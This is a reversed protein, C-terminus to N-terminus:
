PNPFYGDPGSPMPLPAFTGGGPLIMGPPITQKFEARLKAFERELADMRRATSFWGVSLGVVVVLWLVDRITFRFM